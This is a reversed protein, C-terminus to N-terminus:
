GSCDRETWRYPYRMRLPDVWCRRSSSILRLLLAPRRIGMWKLRASAMEGETGQSVTRTQAAQDPVVSAVSAGMEEGLAEAVASCSDTAM